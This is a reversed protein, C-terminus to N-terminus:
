EASYKGTSIRFCDFIFLITISVLYIIKFNVTVMGTMGVINAKQQLPTGIAVPKDPLRHPSGPIAITPLAPL